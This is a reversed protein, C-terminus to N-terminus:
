IKLPIIYYFNCTAFKTFCAEATHNDGATCACYSRVGTCPATGSHKYTRSHMHYLMNCNNRFHLRTTSTLLPCCAEYNGIRGKAKSSTLIVSHSKLLDTEAANMKKKKKKKKVNEFVPMLSAPTPMVAM